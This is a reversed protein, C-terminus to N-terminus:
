QLTVMVPILGTGSDLGGLAKGVVTGCSPSDAAMVHGPEPSAVLLSGPVIAGGTDADAKVAKYSGLTVISLYEGPAIGTGDALSAPTAAPRLTAAGDEDDNEPSADPESPQMTHLRDVVGVIASSAATTSKRVQILPIEGIVPEGSGTIVVLDGTELYDPGDNVAIEVVYGSKSDYFYANGHFSSYGEVYLGPFTEGLSHQFYGAYSNQGVGVVGRYGTFYGGWCSSFNTEGVGYVGVGAWSSGYIGPNRAVGTARSYGALPVGSNSIFLGGYGRGQTTGADQGLVGIGDETYGYVGTGGISKGSIATGTAVSKQSSFFPVVVASDAAPLHAPAFLLTLLALGVTANLRTWNM